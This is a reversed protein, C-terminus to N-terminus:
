KFLKQMTITRIITEHIGQEMRRLANSTEKEQKLLHLLQQQALHEEQVNTLLSTYQGNNKHLEQIIQELLKIIEKREQEMKVAYGSIKPNDKIKFFFMTNLRPFSTLM